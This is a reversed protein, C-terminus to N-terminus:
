KRPAVGVQSALNIAAGIIRDEIDSRWPTTFIPSRAGEYGGELLVRKSPIYEMVDNSYGLVFVEHGFLRKIKISYDVVIEGGLVFLPLTGLKWVQVPYPYSNMLSGKKLLEAELVKAKNIIWLGNAVTDGTDRIIKSLEELSPPANEFYLPIESYATALSPPVPNMKEELVGQVALALEGGYKKALSVSRRPLPNQDGGAGQFFMAVAGPYNSELELQAFAPYDGSWNYDSLVTPHCSYGFIIAITKGAANVAKIVPVAHDFPGNLEHANKVSAETNNRRNVAFRATGIGSFLLGPEMKGFADEAAKVIQNQLFVAYEKIKEREGPNIRYYFHRVDMEPGTHTHSSNLIIQAKELGLSARLRNRISDSVFKPFRAIDATVLLSRKGENDEFAIAKAWLDTLKGEAAHDRLAYGGMWISEGPTIKIQSVGIKWFESEREFSLGFVESTFLIPLFFLCLLRLIRKLNYIM